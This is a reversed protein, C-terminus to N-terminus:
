ISESDELLSTKILMKRVGELFIPKLIRENVGFTRVDTSDSLNPFATLLCIYPRPVDRDMNRDLFENIKKASDLGNCIPMQHDM